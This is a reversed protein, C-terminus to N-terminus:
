IKFFKSLYELFVILHFIFNNPVPFVVIHFVSFLFMTKLISPYKELKGPRVFIKRM